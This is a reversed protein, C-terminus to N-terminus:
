RKKALAVSRSSGNRQEAPPLARKAPVEDHKRAFRNRIMSMVSHGLGSAANSLLHSATTGSKQLAMKALAGGATALKSSQMMSEIQLAARRAAETAESAAKTTVELHEITHRAVRLTPTLEENLVTQVSTIVGDVRQMTKDLDRRTSELALSADNLVKILKLVAVIGAVILVALLVWVTPQLITM